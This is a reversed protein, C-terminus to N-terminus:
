INTAVVADIILQNDEIWANVNDALVGRALYREVGFTNELYDVATHVNGAAYHRRAIALIGQADVTYPAVISM